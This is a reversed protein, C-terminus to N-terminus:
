AGSSISSQAMRPKGWIPSGIGPLSPWRSYGMEDWFVFGARTPDQAAARLCALLYAVKPLYEPDPSLQELCASRLRVRCRQLLYWFGALSYHAIQTVSDCFAHFPPQHVCGGKWAEPKGLRNICANSSRKGRTM